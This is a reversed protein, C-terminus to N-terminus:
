RSLSKSTQDSTTLEDFHLQFELFPDELVQTLQRSLAPQPVQNRARSLFDLLLQRTPQRRHLLLHVWAWSDRYHSDQFDSEQTIDELEELSPILGCRAREAVSELYPNGAYRNERPVEFYEALGEDLWLPTQSGSQNLLAHTAEHRLDTEIEDHWSTFLMGPGRDRLYIARRQIIAPFYHQMYRIYEASSGFLVVHITETQVPLQLLDAIDGRLHQLTKTLTAEDAICFDSHVSFIDINAEYPWTRRVSQAQVPLQLCMGLLCAKVLSRLRHANPMTESQQIRFVPM